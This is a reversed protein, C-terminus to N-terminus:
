AVATLHRGGVPYASTEVLAAHHDLASGKFFHAPNLRYRCNKGDKVESRLIVGAKTLSKLARSISPASSNMQKALDAAVLPTWGDGTCISVVRWFVRWELGSLDLDSLAAAEAIGVNIHGNRFGYRRRPGSELEEGTDTNVVTFRGRM